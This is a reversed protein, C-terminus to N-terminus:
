RKTILSEARKLWISNAVLSHLFDAGDIRLVLWQSNLPAREHAWARFVMGKASVWGSVLCITGKNYWYDNTQLQNIDMARTKRADRIFPRRGDIINKCARRKKKRQKKTEKNWKWRVSKRPSVHAGSINKWVRKKHMWKTRWYSVWKKISNLWVQILVEGM